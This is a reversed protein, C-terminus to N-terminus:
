TVSTAHLDGPNFFSRTRAAAATNPSHHQEDLIMLYEANAGCEPEPENWPIAFNLVSYYGMTDGPQGLADSNEWAVPVSWITTAEGSQGGREERLHLTAAHWPIEYADREFLPNYVTQVSREYMPNVHHAMKFLLKVVGWLSTINIKKIYYLIEHCQSGDGSLM